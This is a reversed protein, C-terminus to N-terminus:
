APLSLLPDTGSADRDVALTSLQALTHAGLILQAQIASWDTLPWSGFRHHQETM